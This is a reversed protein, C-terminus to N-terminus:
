RYPAGAANEGVLARSNIVAVLFRTVCNRHRAPGTCCSTAVGLAPWEHQRTLLRGGGSLRLQFASKGQSASCTPEGSWYRQRAPLRPRHTAIPPFKPGPQKMRAPASGFAEEPEDM